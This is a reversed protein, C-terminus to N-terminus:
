GRWCSHCVMYDGDFHQKSPPTYSNCKVCKTNELEEEIAAMTPGTALVEDTGANAPDLMVEISYIRSGDPHETYGTLLIISGFQDAAAQLNESVKRLKLEKTARSVLMELFSIRQELEQAWKTPVVESGEAIDDTMPTPTSLKIM